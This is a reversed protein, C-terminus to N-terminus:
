AIKIRGKSSDIEDVIGVIVSNVLTGPKNMVARASNGETMVLVIDNIGAQVKDIALLTKGNDNLDPDIPKVMMVKEGEYTPHKATAVVNGIVKGLIM